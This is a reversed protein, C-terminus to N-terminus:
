FLLIFNKLFDKKNTLISYIGKFIKLNNYIIYNLYHNYMEYYVIIINTM